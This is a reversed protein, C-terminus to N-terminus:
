NTGKKQIIDQDRNLAVVPPSLFPPLPPFPPTQSHVEVTKSLTSPNTGDFNYGPYSDKHQVKFASIALKKKTCSIRHVKEISSM